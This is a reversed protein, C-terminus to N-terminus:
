KYVVPLSHASRSATDCVSGRGTILRNAEYQKVIAEVAKVQEPSLTGTSASTALIKSADNSGTPPTIKTNGEDDVEVTPSSPAITVAPAAVIGTIGQIAVMAIMFSDIGCVVAHYYQSDIAGNLYAECVRFYGDRLLQITQTRIGISGVSENVGGGGGLANTSGPDDGAAPVQQQARAAVYSAQAVIADPSPETCTVREGDPRMGTVVLRQKADISLINVDGLNTKRFITSTCGAALITTAVLSAAIVRRAVPKVAVPENSNDTKGVTTSWDGM